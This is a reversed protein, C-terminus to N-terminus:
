RTKDGKQGHGLKGEEKPLISLREFVPCRPQTTLLASNVGIQQFRERYYVPM